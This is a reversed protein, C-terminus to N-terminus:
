LKYITCQINYKVEFDSIMKKYNDWNGGGLGCGIRHPFAISKINLQGIKDLCEKFWKERNEYTDIHYNPYSKYKLPTSPAWQAFMCIVNKDKNESSLIKITGPVDRYEETALNRNGVKKRHSYPDAWKWKDAITKSLGYGTTTLCNCQQAIYTDCSLIDGDIYKM